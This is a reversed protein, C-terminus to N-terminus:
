EIIYRLDKYQKIMDVLKDLVKKKTVKAKVILGIQNLM